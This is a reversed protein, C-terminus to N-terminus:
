TSKSCSVLSFIQLSPSHEHTGHLRLRQQLLRLHVLINCFLCRFVKSVLIEGSVLAGRTITPDQPVRNVCQGDEDDGHQAYQKGISTPEMGVINCHAKFVDRMGAIQDKSEIAGVNELM